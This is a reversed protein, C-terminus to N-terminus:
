PPPFSLLFIELAIFCLGWLRGFAIRQMELGHWINKHCLDSGWNLYLVVSSSRIQRGLIDLVLRMQDRLLERCLETCIM